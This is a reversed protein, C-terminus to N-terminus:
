KLSERLVSKLIKGYTNKPLSEVFHYAQPRKFRALASMCLADLDAPTVSAARVVFAVPVEGWKGNPMGTVACESVAPSTLLIEEIERPYINSGGSIIVDKSRDSLTLFGNADMRGIDGTRLWGDRL